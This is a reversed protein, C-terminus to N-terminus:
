VIQIGNQGGKMKKVVKKIIDELQLAASLDGSVKLRGSMYAQMPKFKDMFMRQMDTVSLSLVVDAEGGPPLGEGAHGSGNKLDLYFTGGDNGRLNFQYVSRVSKVMAETLVGNTQIIIDRPTPVEGSLLDDSGVAGDESIVTVVDQQSVDVTQGEAGHSQTAAAAEMFVSTLQQFTQPLGPPMM